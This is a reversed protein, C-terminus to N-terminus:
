AWGHDIYTRCLGLVTHPPLYTPCIALLPPLTNDGLDAVLRESELLTIGWVNSQQINSSTAEGYFESLVIARGKPVSCMM